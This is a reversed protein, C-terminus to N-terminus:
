LLAILHAILSRITKDTTSVSNPAPASPFAATPVTFNSTYRALGKTIRLEELFVGAHTDAHGESSGIFLTKASQGITAALSYTNKLVGNMFMRVTGSRRTVAFHFWENYPHVGMHPWSVGDFFHVVNGTSKHVEWGAGTGALGMLRLTKGAVDSPLYMWGEVTFDGEFQWESSAPTSLYSSNSAYYSASTGFKKYATNTVPAGVLSIPHGKVDLFSTGNNAGDMHMLLVVNNWYPDGATVVPAQFAAEVAL